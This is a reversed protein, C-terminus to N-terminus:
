GNNINLESFLVFRYCYWVPCVIVTGPLLSQFHVNLLKDIEKKWLEAQTKYWENSQQEYVIRYVKQPTTESSEGMHCSLFFALFSFLIVNIKM